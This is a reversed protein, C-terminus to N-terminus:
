AASSIGSQGIMACNTSLFSITSTPGFINAKPAEMFDLKANGLESRFNSFGRGHKSHRMDVENIQSDTVRFWGNGQFHEATLHTARVKWILVNKGTTARFLSIQGFKKFNRILLGRQFRCNDLVLLRPDIEVEAGNLDIPDTFIARTFDNRGGEIQATFNEATLMEKTFM